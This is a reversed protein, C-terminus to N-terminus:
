YKIVYVQISIGLNRLLSLIFSNLNLSIILFSWTFVTKLHYMCKSKDLTMTKLYSESPGSNVIKM